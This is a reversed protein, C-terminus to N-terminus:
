GVAVGAVPEGVENWGAGMSDAGRSPLQSSIPYQDCVNSLVNTAVTWYERDTHCHHRGGIGNARAPPPLLM